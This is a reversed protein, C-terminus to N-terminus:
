PKVSLLQKDDTIAVVNVWAPYELFKLGAHM